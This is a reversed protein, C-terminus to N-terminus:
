RGALEDGLPTRRYLVTRGSRTRAVLGTRRLVALHGGVGGLTMALQAVLHSTSAPTDLARLVAARGRGILAALDGDSDPAGPEWLAAAGHAPYGIGFGRPPDPHVGDTGFANPVLVLGAGGLHYTGGDTGGIVIRKGGGPLRYLSLDIDLGTMVQHWGHVSLRGARQVIDRELLARLRTWDAALLETWVATLADAVRHPADPGDLPGPVPRGARAGSLEARAREPPTARVAAVEQEFTTDVGEPPLRYFDPLRDAGRHLAALARLAPDAACLEAFRPRVRATWPTRGPRTGRGGALLTVAGVTQALPSLGFRTRALDEATCELVTM